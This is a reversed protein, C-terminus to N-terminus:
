KMYKRIIPVRVLNNKLINREDSRLGVYYITTLTLILSIITIPILSIPGLNILLRLFAQPIILLVVLIVPLITQTLYVSTKFETLKSLITLQFIMFVIEALIFLITITYPPFGLLYLGYILPLVSIFIITFLVKTKKIKGTADITADFGSELSSVLGGIIRLIVFWATYEPVKKLWLLLIIDISLIIPVAPILMIFFTYKSLSYVLSLTRNQNGSSYSTMIQPIAVQNLNKVFAFVFSHIKSALGFAANLKNGFFLNLIIASGQSSGVSGVVYVMQWGFFNGVEKYDAFNPNIKPNIIVRFRFNCYVLYILSIIVQVVFVYIAYNRLKNGTSLVLLVVAGLNLVSHTIEIGAKFNFKEHVTVLGVYPMIVTSLVTVIISIHLVFLADDIKSPVINLYNKVYWVGGIEAIILFLISFGIHLFLLTNFVKNTNGNKGKGIEIALFRNSTAVLSTSLMNMIAVIGGVVEYLGYDDVGLELLVLRSSYLGIATTILLRGYMIISNKAIRKNDSM